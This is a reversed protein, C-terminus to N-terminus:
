NMPIFAMQYTNFTSASGSLAGAAVNLRGPVFPNGATNTTTMTGRKAIEIPTGFADAPLGANETEIVM